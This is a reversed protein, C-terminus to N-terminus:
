VFLHLFPAFLSGFSVLWCVFCVFLSALLRCVLLCFLRVFLGVLTAYFLFCSVAYLYGHCRELFVIRCFLLRLVVVIMWVPVAVDFQLLLMLCGASGRM